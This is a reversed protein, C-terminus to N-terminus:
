QASCLILTFFLHCSQLYDLENVINIWKNAKQGIVFSGAAAKIRNLATFWLMVSISELGLQM